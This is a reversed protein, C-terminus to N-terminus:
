QGRKRPRVINLVTAHNLGAARAVERVGGGSDVAARILANRKETWTAAKNAARAIERATEDDLPVSPLTPASVPDIAARPTPSQGDEWVVGRAGHRPSVHGERKWCLLDGNRAGCRPGLDARPPPGCFKCRGAKIMVQAQAASVFQHQRDCSPCRVLLRTTM